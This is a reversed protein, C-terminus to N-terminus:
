TDRVARYAFVALTGFVALLFLPTFWAGLGDQQGLAVRVTASTIYVFAWVTVATVARVMRIANRYQRRANEHTIRRPYNFTHPHRAAWYSGVQLLLGLGVLWWIHVKDGYRDPMGFLDFHLPIREPLEGYALLVVTFHAIVGLWGALALRQDGPTPPLDPRPRAPDRPM